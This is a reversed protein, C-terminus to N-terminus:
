FTPVVVVSLNTTYQGAPTSPKINAIMSLTYDTRGSSKNSSAIIAGNNYTFSDPINYDAAPVGFSFSSDPYQAPDVGVNPTANDRLNIGFQEVGTQSPTPAALTTLTNSGYTPASGSIIMNYGSALYTRVQISAVGTHTLSTDLIGLDISGNVAVELLPVDTTNFGGQAQYNTSTTNGVAAEGASQKACYSSSCANLEGGTGFYYEDVRYNTSTSQATTVASVGSV